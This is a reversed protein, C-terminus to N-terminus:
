WRPLSTSVMTEVPTEAAVGDNALADLYIGYHASEWAKAEEVATGEGWENFTTVLQWPDGAAVMERINQQWRALNRALRPATEDARWFGPSISYSFGAQRDAAEAPAYQHWSSPQAACDRYGSFVKLVVYWDPAAARWRTAVECDTDDTNYVFIVPKGDVVAYDPGVYSQLYKLDTELEDVSPDSIGEKEYYVAWKLPSGLAQTQELLQPIRVREDHTGAGWWSAIAVEVKAYDLAKIHAKVVSSDDSYYRGLVPELSVEAGNVRWTEPYWPYYFAARAPLTVNTQLTDHPFAASAGLSRGSPLCATLLLLAVTAMRLPRKRPSAQDM